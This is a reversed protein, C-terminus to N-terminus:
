EAVFLLQGNKVKLGQAQTTKRGMLDFQQTAAPQATLSEVGTVDPENGEAHFNEFLATVGNGEVDFVIEVEVTQDFYNTLDVTYTIMMLQEPEEYDYGELLVVEDDGEATHIIAKLYDDELWSYANYQPTTFRSWTYAAMDFSLVAETQNVHIPAIKVYMHKDSRSTLNFESPDTHELTGINSMQSSVVLNSTWGTPADYLSNGMTTYAWPLEITTIAAAKVTDPECSFGYEENYSYALFYYDLGPKLGELLIDSAAPGFYAVKGGGDIEDGTQYSADLPGHQARVGYNGPNHTSDNVVVMIQDGQANAAVDLLMSQTTIDHFTIVGPKEPTTNVQAVLPGDVNYQPGNLGFFNSAFVTITYITSGSLDRINFDTSSSYKVVTGNGLADGAAYATKAEPAANLDGESLVVLYYDAECATFAASLETASAKTVVLDTPQTAPVVVDSPTEFTFVANDAVSTSMNAKGQSTRVVSDFDGTVCTIDKPGSGRMAAFWNYSQSLESAGKANFQITGDENLIILTQLFDSPESAWSRSNFGYSDFSIVLQREPSQGIVEYGIQFDPNDFAGNESGFLVLNNYAEDEYSYFYTNAMVPIDEEASLRVAGGGSVAFYKMTQGCFPFDFGIAFGKGTVSSYRETAVTGDAFYYAWNAPLAQETTKVMQREGPTYADMTGTSFGYSAGVQAQLVGAAMMAVFLLTQKKM